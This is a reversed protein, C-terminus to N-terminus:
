IDKSRFAKRVFESVCPPLEDTDPNTGKLSHVANYTARRKQKESVPGSFLEGKELDFAGRFPDQGLFFNHELKTPAEAGDGVPWFETDTYKLPTKRLEVLICTGTCGCGAKHKKAHAETSPTTVQRKKQLRAEGEEDSDPM